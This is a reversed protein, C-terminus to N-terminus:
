TLLFTEINWFLEERLVEYGFIIETYVNLFRRSDFIANVIELCSIYFCLYPMLFM